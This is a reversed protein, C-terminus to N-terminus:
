AVAARLSEIHVMLKTTPHFWENGHALAGAFQDHRRQEADLGGPETALLSSGPPYARLRAKIQTTTGIKILEGVRVYYVVANDERIQRAMKHQKGIDASMAAIARPGFTGLDDRMTDFQDRMFELLMAGHKICVPIPADPICPAGCFTRYDMSVTCYDPASGEAM